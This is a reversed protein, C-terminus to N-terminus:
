PLSDKITVWTHSLGIIKVLEYFIKANIPHLRICGHSAKTGLKTFNGPTTGHIAYGGRLFVAYPMNGLGKYNGGPYKRSSYKTFVPGAPKLNLNPTEYKRIGTSVEFSDKLEGEIYLYLIQTSKVIEAYLFCDKGSCPTQVITNRNLLFSDLVKINEKVIEKEEPTFKELKKLVKIFTDIQEILAADRHWLTDIRILLTDLSDIGPTFVKADFINSADGTTDYNEIGMSDKFTEYQFKEPVPKKKGNKCSQFFIVLGLSVAAVKICYKVTM